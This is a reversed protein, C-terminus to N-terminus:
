KVIKRGYGQRLRDCLYSPVFILSPVEEIARAFKKKAGMGWTGKIEIVARYKKLYFDPIYRDGKRLRIAFPEYDFSGEGFTSTLFNAFTYENESRYQGQLVKMHPPVLGFAEGLDSLRPGGQRIRGLLCAISCYMPVRSITLSEQKATLAFFSKCVSCKNM